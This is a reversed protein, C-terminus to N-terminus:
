RPMMKAYVQIYRYVCKYMPIYWTLSMLAVISLVLAPERRSPKGCTASRLIIGTSIHHLYQHPAHVPVDGGALGSDGLCVKWLQVLLSNIRSRNCFVKWVLCTFTALPIELFSMANQM